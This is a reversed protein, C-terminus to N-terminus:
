KLVIMLISGNQCYVFSFARNTFVDIAKEDAATSRVIDSTSVTVEIQRLMAKCTVREPLEIYLIILDSIDLRDLLSNGSVMSRVILKASIEGGGGTRERSYETKLPIRGSRLKEDYALRSYM